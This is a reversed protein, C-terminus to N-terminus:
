LICVPRSNLGSLIGNNNITIGKANRKPNMVFFFYLDLAACYDLSVLVNRNIVSIIISSYEVFPM